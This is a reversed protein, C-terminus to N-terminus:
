VDCSLDASYCFSIDTINSTEYYFTHDANFSCKHRQTYYLYIGLDVYRSFRWYGIIYSICSIDVM